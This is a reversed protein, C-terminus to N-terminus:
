EMNKINDNYKLLLNFYYNKKSKRKVSAFLKKYEKYTTKSVTARKLISKM